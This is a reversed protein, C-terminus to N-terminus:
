DEAKLPYSDSIADLDIQRHHQSQQAPQKSVLFFTIELSCLGIESCQISLIESM